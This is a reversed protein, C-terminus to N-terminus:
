DHEDSDIDQWDQSANIPLSDQSPSTFKASPFIHKDPLKKFGDSKKWKHRRNILTLEKRVDKFYNKMSYVEGSSTPDSMPNNKIIIDCCYMACLNAYYWRTKYCHSDNHRAFKQLSTVMRQAMVKPPIM